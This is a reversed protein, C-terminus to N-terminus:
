ILDTNAKIKLVSYEKYAQQGLNLKRNVGGQWLYILDKFGRNSCRNVQRLGLRKKTECDGEGWNRM